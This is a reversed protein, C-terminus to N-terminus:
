PHQRFVAPHQPQPAPTPAEIEHLVEVCVTCHRHTSVAEFNLDPRPKLPEFPEFFINLKM